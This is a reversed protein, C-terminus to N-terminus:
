VIVSGAKLTPLQRPGRIFPPGLARFGPAGPGWSGFYLNLVYCESIYVVQRPLEPPWECHLCCPDCSCQSAGKLAENYCQTDSTVQSLTLRLTFTQLRQFSGKIVQVLFTHLNVSYSIIEEIM